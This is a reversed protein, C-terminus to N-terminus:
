LQKEQPTWEVKVVGTGEMIALDQLSWYTVEGTEPDKRPYKKETLKRITADEASPKIYHKFLVEAIEDSQKGM